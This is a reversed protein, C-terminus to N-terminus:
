AFEGLIKVEPELEVQDKERVTKQVDCILQYVDSATAGGVNVVFGCHKPSVQAGGVTYGALGADQILKGAFYGEPRKFTSGASPFELPQKSVRQDKLENMRALIQEGDGKELSLVAELVVYGKKAIVSTRYGLELENAAITCIEGSEDIVTVEVLIDKIEGGYAGANMTVAGGITGPIGSLCEMGTLEHNLAAKAVTSMAAGAQTRIIYDNEVTVENLNRYIQIIVGRYGADSVLLNSGNGVIYYPLNEKKCIALADKVGEMTTPALFYDAPGGVRFTTHKAMPEQTFVCEKGLKDIFMNLIDTNM